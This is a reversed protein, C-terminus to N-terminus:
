EDRRDKRRSTLYVIGGILLVLAGGAAKGDLEPVGRATGGQRSAPNRSQWKSSSM